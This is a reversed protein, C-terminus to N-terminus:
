WPRYVYIRKQVVENGQEKKKKLPPLEIRKERQLSLATLRSDFRQWQLSLPYGLGFRSLCTVLLPYAYLCIVGAMVVHFLSFEAVPFLFLCMTLGFLSSGLFFFPIYAQLIFKGFSLFSAKFHFLLPLLGLGLLVYFAIRSARADIGTWGLGLELVLISVVTFLAGLGKRHKGHGICYLGFPFSVVGAGWLAYYSWDLAPIYGKSALVVGFGIGLAALPTLVLLAIRGLCIASVDYVFKQKTNELRYQELYAAVGPRKEQFREIELPLFCFFLLTFGKADMSLFSANEMMGYGIMTIMVFLISFAYAKKRGIARACLYVFRILLILYAGLKLLGGDILCQMVSNHASYVQIGDVTPIHLLALYVRGQYDGAGFLLTLPNGSLATGIINWTEVRTKFSTRGETYSTIERHLKAFVSGKGFADTFVMVTLAIIGGLIVLFFFISRFPKRRVTAVFRYLVYVFILFWTCLISTASLVLFQFFGFAFILPWYFFRRSANHLMCLMAVALLILFAFTNENNTFSKTWYSFVRGSPDFLNQYFIWEFVLSYVIAALAVLVPIWGLLRIWRSSPIIKPFVAFFLYFYLCALFFCLVYQIRAELTFTWDYPFIESRYVITGSFHSGFAFTGIVNGIGLILFFFVWGWSPRLRFNRHALVLLAIVSCLAAAFCLYFESPNMFSTPHESFLAIREGLFAGLVVCLSTLLLLSFYSVGRLGKAEKRIMPAKSMAQITGRNWRKAMTM